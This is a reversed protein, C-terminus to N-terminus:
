ALAQQMAAAESIATPKGDWAPLLKQAQAYREKMSALLKSLLGAMCCCFIMVVAQEAIHHVYRQILENQWPGHDILYLVGIGAPVGVLFTFWSAFSGQRRPATRAGGAM